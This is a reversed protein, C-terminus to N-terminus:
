ADADRSARRVSSVLMWLAAAMALLNAGKGLWSALVPDVTVRIPM